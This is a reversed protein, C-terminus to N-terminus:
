RLTEAFREEFRERVSWERLDDVWRVILSQFLSHELTDRPITPSREGGGKRLREKGREGM